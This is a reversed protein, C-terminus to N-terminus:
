RRWMNATRSALKALRAGSGPKDNLERVEDVAVGTPASNAPVFHPNRMDHLTKLLNRRGHQRSVCPKLKSMDSAHTM